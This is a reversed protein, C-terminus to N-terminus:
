LKRTMQEQRVNASDIKNKQAIYSMEPMVLNMRLMYIEEYRTIDEKALM